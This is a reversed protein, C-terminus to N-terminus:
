GLAISYALATSVAILVANSTAATTSSNSSVSDSLTVSSTNAKNYASQAYQNVATINTNQTDNVGTFLSVSVGATTQVSADPFRVGTAIVLQNNATDSSIIGGLESLERSNSSM